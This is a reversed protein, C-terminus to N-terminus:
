RYGEVFVVRGTAKDIRLKGGGGRVNSDKPWYVVLWYDEHEEAQYKLAYTQSADTAMNLEALCIAGDSTVVPPAPCDTAAALASSSALVVPVIIRHAFKM